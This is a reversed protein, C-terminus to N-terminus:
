GDFANFPFQLFAVLKQQTARGSSAVSNDATQSQTIEQDHKSVLEEGALHVVCFLACCPVLCIIFLVVFLQPFLLYDMM